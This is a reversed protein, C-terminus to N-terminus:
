AKIYSYYHSLIDQLLKLSPLEIKLKLTTHWDSRLIIRLVKVIDANIKEADKTQAACNQCVMGGEKNSFYIVKPDPTKLCVACRSLEPGYGLMTFFNWMFYSYVLEQNKILSEANLKEFFDVIFHFIKEDPAQGRIFTDFAGSVRRAIEMKEPAIPIQSFRELFVADTLTNRIKGRIFSLESLSFIEIGSKLKSAIRRIAKAFIEVKGFDHTFAFFVRDAELRDERKFVFGKTRYHTTM